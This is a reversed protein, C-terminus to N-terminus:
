EGEKAAAPKAAAPQGPAPANAPPPKYVFASITCVADAPYFQRGTKRALSFDKLNITKEYGSIQSAFMGFTHYGARFTFEVPYEDYFESSVAKLLKFSMQEIGATDALKKIRNPMEGRDADTPMIRILDEIDKRQKTVEKNLAEYNAKLAFGQNVEAQLAENASVLSDRDSRMGGMAFYAGVLIVLGAGGGILIQKQLQANM